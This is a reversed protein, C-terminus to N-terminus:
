SELKMAGSGFLFLTTAPRTSQGKERRKAQTSRPGPTAEPYRGSAAGGVGCCMALEKRYIHQRKHNHRARQNACAMCHNLSFLQTQFFSPRELRLRSLKGPAGLSPTRQHSNRGDVCVHCSSCIAKRHLWTKRCSRYNRHSGISGPARKSVRRSSSAHIRLKRSVKFDRPSSPERFRDPQRRTNLM